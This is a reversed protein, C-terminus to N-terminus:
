RNEELLAMIASAISKTAGDSPTALYHRAFEAFADAPADTPSEGFALVARTLLEADRFSQDCFQHEPDINLGPSGRYTDIDPLYFFVRAGALFAEFAVASYDSVVVDVLPMLALSGGDVLSIGAGYCRESFHGDDADRSAYQVGIAAELQSLVHPSVFFNCKGSLQEALHMVGKTFLGAEDHQRFTPAYLVNLRGNQLQPYCSLLEKRDVACEAAILQDLDSFCEGDVVNSCIGEGEASEWGAAEREVAKPGAVPQGLMGRSALLYDVRPLGLPAIRESPVNFAEAFAHIAGSGGAVVMDYNGHM